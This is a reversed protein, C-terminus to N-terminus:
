GILPDHLHLYHRLLCVTFLSCFVLTRMFMRNANAENYVPYNEAADCSASIPDLKAPQYRIETTAAPASSSSIV